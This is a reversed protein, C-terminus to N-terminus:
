SRDVEKPERVHDQEDLWVDVVVVFADSDRLWVRGIDDLDRGKHLMAEGHM